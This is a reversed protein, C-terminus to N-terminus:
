TRQHKLHIVQVDFYEEVVTLESPEPITATLIYDSGKPLKSIM